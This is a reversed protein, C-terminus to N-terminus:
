SGRSSEESSGSGSTDPSRELADDPGSEPETSGEEGSRLVGPVPEADMGAPDEEGGPGAADPGAATSPRGDEAEPPFLALARARQIQQEELRAFETNKLYYERGTQEAGRVLSKVLGMEKVGLFVDRLSAAISPDHVLMGVSGEGSSIKALIAQLSGAGAELREVLVALDEGMARDTFIRDLASGSSEARALLREIRDSVRAVSDLVRIGKSHAESDALLEGLFGKGDRVDDSVARLNAILASTDAVAKSFDEAYEPSFILKGLTGRQSRVEEMVGQFDTTVSQLQRTTVEMTSVFTNLNNYLEPNKLLQGLTGQGENIERMMTITTQLLDTTNSRFEEGVIDDVLSREKFTLLAGQACIDAKATGMRVHLAVDGLLGENQLWVYSDDRIRQQYDKEIRVVVEVDNVGLDSPLTIESVAGVHVGSLYVRSGSMLGSANPLRVRYTVHGAFFSVGDGVVFLGAVVLITAVFLVFGVSFDISFRSRKM